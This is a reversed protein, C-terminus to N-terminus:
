KKTGAKERAASVVAQTKASRQNKIWLKKALKEAKNGYLKKMIAMNAKRIKQGFKYKKYSKHNARRAMKLTIITKLRAIQAQKSLHVVNIRPNTIRVTAAENVLGQGVYYESLTKIAKQVEEDLRATQEEDGLIMNEIMIGLCDATCEQMFQEDAEYESIDDSVDPEMSERLASEDIIGSVFQRLFEFKPM